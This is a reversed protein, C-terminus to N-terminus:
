NEQIPETTTTEAAAYADAIATYTEPNLTGPIEQYVSLLASQTFPDPHLSRLAAKVTEPIPKWAM